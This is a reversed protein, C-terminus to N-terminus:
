LHVNDIYAVATDRRRQWNIIREARIGILNDQWLSVLSTGTPTAGSNTPASDMQLSAQDSADLQVGGDDALFIESAAVLVIISGASVSNPVNNSVIVPIGQWSGGTINISPYSFEGNTERLMSLKLANYPTMVWVLTSLPINATLMGAFLSAVDADILARTAGGSQVPTIGNTIAAPSVNAVAAVGPSIFQQDQFQAMTNVLDNRVIEEASPSSFRALEQTIVVIGAAKAFAMTNTAFALKSVPKAAGQGVWGVSAGATQSPFRINFPVKRLGQIRGLITEPYLLEVFESALNNYQVLPSAWTADTTTGAAIATKQHLNEMGGAMMAQVAFDTGGSRTAFELVNSVEPTTDKWRNAVKLATELNGKSFALAIALRTFGTGKPLNSKGMTIPRVSAPQRTDATRNETPETATSKNVEEQDRLRAIHVNLDKNEQKLEDYKEGEEQTLTRGEEAADQMLKTMADVNAARKAETDRLTEANTKMKPGNSLLSVAKGSAGPSSTAVGDQGSRGLAPASREVISKINTITAEENAPITVLSLELWTWELFRYGSKIVEIAGEIPQFGISVAAVLKYRISQIAEDVRDKLAGPEKVVPIQAEYPIGKNTPKAFTVLGVPKSANHQWLLPMPLKFKAGMPEVVDGMRDTTPTSAVGKITYFDPGETIEKVNLIMYARNM